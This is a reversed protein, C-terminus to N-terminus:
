PSDEERLYPRLIPPDHLGYLPNPATYRRSQSISGTDHPHEEPGAPASCVVPNLRVRSGVLVLSTSNPRTACRCAPLCPRLRRLRDIKQAKRQITRDTRVGSHAPSTTSCRFSRQRRCERFLRRNGKPLCRRTSGSFRRRSACKEWGSAISIPRAGEIKALQGVLSGVPGSAAAVV